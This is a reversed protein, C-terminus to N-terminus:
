ATRDHSKVLEDHLALTEAALPIQRGNLYQISSMICALLGADLSTYALMELRERDAFTRGPEFTDAEYVIKELASMGPVAVTHRAIAGLIDPDDIAFDRRAIDAGVAAHLLVPYTREVASVPLGHRDAYALLEAPTWLRAIDHVLGAIRAKLTPAGHHAALKEAARAVSVCHRYREPTLRSRM